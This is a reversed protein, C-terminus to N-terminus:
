GADGHGSNDAYETVRHDGAWDGRDGAQQGLVAVIPSPKELSQCRHQDHAGCHSVGVLGAM